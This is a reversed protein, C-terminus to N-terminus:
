DEKPVPRFIKVSGKKVNKLDFATIGMKRGTYGTNQHFLELSGPSKVSYVIATHHSYEEETIMDDTRIEVKVKEFQIIDGPQICEKKPDIERGFVYLGNWEADVADLALKAADWCEGRDIKKGKYPKLVKLIEQNLAPIEACSAAYQAKVSLTFGILLTAILFKM